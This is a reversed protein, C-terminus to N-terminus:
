SANTTVTFHSVRSGFIRSIALVQQDFITVVEAQRRMPRLQTGQEPKDTPPDLNEPILVIRIHSPSIAKDRKAMVRKFEAPATTGPSSSSLVALKRITPITNKPINRKRLSGV